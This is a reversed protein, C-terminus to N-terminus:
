PIGLGLDVACFPWNPTSAHVALCSRSPTGPPDQVGAGSLALRRTHDTRRDRPAPDGFAPRRRRRPGVQQTYREGVILTLNRPALPSHSRIRRSAGAVATPTPPRRTRQQPPAPRRALRGRQAAGRRRKRAPRWLRALEPGPFAS